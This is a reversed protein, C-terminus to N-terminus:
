DSLIYSFDFYDLVQEVFDFGSVHPYQQEFRKFEGEHFLYRLFALLPRRIAPRRNLIGPFNETILNEVSIM